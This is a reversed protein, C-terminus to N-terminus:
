SFKLCLVSILYDPKEKSHSVLFMDLRSLDALHCHMLRPSNHESISTVLRAAQSIGMQFCFNILSFNTKSKRYGFKFDHEQEM